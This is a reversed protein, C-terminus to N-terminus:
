AAEVIELTVRTNQAAAAASLLARFARVLRAESGAFKNIDASSLSLTIEEGQEGAKSVIADAGVQHGTKEFLFRVLETM